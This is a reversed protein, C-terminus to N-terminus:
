IFSYKTVALLVVALLFLVPVENLLRYFRPSHNNEDRAFMRVLKLLYFHYVYFFIVLTLKLHLWM